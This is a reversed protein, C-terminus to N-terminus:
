NTKSEREIRCISGDLKCFASRAKSNNLRYQPDGLRSLDRVKSNAIAAAVDRTRNKITDDALSTTDIAIIGLDEVMEADFKERGKIDDREMIELVCYKELCDFEFILARGAAVITGHQDKWAYLLTSHQKNPKIYDYKILIHIIVIVIVTSGHIVLVVVVVTLIDCIYTSHIITIYPHIDNFYENEQNNVYNVLPIALDQLKLQTINNNTPYVSPEMSSYKSPMASPVTTPDALRSEILKKITIM